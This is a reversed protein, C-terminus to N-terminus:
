KTKNVSCFVARYCFLCVNVLIVKKCFLEEGWIFISLLNGTEWLDKGLFNHWSIFFGPKSLSGRGGGGTARCVGVQPETNEVHKKFLYKCFTLLHHWDGRMRNDNVFYNFSIIILYGKKIM